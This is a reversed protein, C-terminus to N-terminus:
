PGALRRAEELLAAPGPATLDREGNVDIVHLRGRGGGMEDRFDYVAGVVALEGTGVLDGYEGMANAVQRHVNEVVGARWREEFPAERSVDRLSLHLGDLERRIAPPEHGYDGLAAKVAGCGVHGIVLLLPTHLHRVGYAVSGESGDVQNGINRIAFVDGDPSSEIAQAHFRSDACAVFTIRPHQDKEFPEFYGRPHGTVFAGNDALVEALAQAAAGRGEGGQAGAPAVAGAPDAAGAAPPAVAVLDAATGHIGAGPRSCASSLALGLVPLVVGLFTKGM